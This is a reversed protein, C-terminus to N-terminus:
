EGAGGVEATDSPGIDGAASNRDANEDGAGLTRDGDGSGDTIEGAIAM